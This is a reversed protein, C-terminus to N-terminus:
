KCKLFVHIDTFSNKVDATELTDVRRSVMRPVCESARTVRGEKEHSGQARGGEGSTWHTGFCVPGERLCFSPERVDEPRGVLM